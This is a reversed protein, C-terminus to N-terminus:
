ERNGFKRQRFYLFLAMAVFGVALAVPLQVAHPSVMYQLQKKNLSHTDSPYGFHQEVLTCAASIVKQLGKDFTEAKQSRLKKEQSVVLNDCKARTLTKQLGTGAFLRVNRKAGSVGVLVYLDNQGIHSPRKLHLGQQSTLYVQPKEKHQRYRMDKDNVLAVTNPSFVSASDKVRQPIGATLFVFAVVAVLGLFKKKSM